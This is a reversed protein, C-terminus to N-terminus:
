ERRSMLRATARSMGRQPVLGRERTRDHPQTDRACRLTVRKLPATRQLGPGDRVTGVERPGICMRLWHAIWRHNANGRRVSPAGGGGSLPLTPTPTVSVCGAV